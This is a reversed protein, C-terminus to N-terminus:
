KVGVKMGALLRLDFESLVLESKSTTPNWQYTKGIACSAEPCTLRAKDVAQLASRQEHDQIHIAVASNLEQETSRSIKGGLKCLPCQFVFITM